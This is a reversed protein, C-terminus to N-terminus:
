LEAHARNSIPGPPVGQGEPLQRTKKNLLEDIKKVLIPLASGRDDTAGRIASSDELTRKSSRAPVEIGNGAGRQHPVYHCLKM